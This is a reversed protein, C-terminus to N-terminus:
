LVIINHITNEIFCFIELNGNIRDFISDTQNDRQM